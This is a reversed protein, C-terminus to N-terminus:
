TKVHVEEVQSQRQHIHSCNALFLHASVSRNLSTFQRLQRQPQNQSGDDTSAPLDKNPKSFLHQSTAM